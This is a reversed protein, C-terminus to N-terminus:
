HRFLPAAEGRRAPRRPRSWPGLDAQMGLLPARSHQRRRIPKRVASVQQHKHVRTLEREFATV